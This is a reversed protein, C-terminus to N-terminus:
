EPPHGTWAGRPRPNRLSLRIVCRPICRIDGGECYGYIVYLPHGVREANEASPHAVVFCIDSQIYSYSSTMRLPGDPRSPNRARIPLVGTLDV